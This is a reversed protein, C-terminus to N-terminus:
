AIAAAYATLFTGWRTDKAFQLEEYVVETGGRSPFYVATGAARRLREGKYGSALVFGSKGIAAKEVAASAAVVAPDKTSKALNRAFDVLDVFDPNDFAATRAAAASVSGENGATIVALLAGALADVAQALKSSAGLNCASQTVEDSAYSDVYEKVVVAGFKAGTMKPAAALRKLVRDYPWGAGPEVEESGVIVNVASRMEYGLELMAMLCADFGVLDIPQGIATSVEALVRHLEANDLFDRNTDDYAIGRDNGRTASEEIRDLSSRFLASRMKPGGRRSSRVNAYIDAEDIGSGHNWVVVAYRDAPYNAAAWSFFDIAVTPDGTNTEGLDAVADAELTTGRHLVYRRTRADRMLDCQAIVNIDANTGVKKMEMLDDIAASDLSNDGAIWVLFTWKKKTITSGTM